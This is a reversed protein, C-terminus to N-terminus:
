LEYSLTSAFIEIHRQYKQINTDEIGDHDYKYAKVKVTNVDFVKDDLFSCIVFNIPKGLAIYFGKMCKLDQSSYLPSSNPSHTHMFVLEHNNLDVNKIEEWVQLFNFEVEDFSGRDFCIEECDLLVLGKEKFEM